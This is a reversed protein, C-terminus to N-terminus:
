SPVAGGGHLFWAASPPPMPSTYLAVNALNAWVHGAAHLLAALLPRRAAAHSLAFCVLAVAMAGAFEHRVLATADFSRLVQWWLAVQVVFIDFNRRVGRRPDRWYLLSTVFVAAPCLALDIYRAHCAVAASGFSLHAAWWVIQALQPPLEPPPPLEPARRRAHTLGDRAGSPERM